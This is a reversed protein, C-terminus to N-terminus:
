KSGRCKELCRYLIVSLIIDIPVTIFFNLYPNMEGGFCHTVIQQIPWGLLYMEYSIVFMESKIQKTGLALTAVVYPLCFILMYDLMEIKCSISMIPIMAIALRIDLKIKDAFDCYLTGVLFMIVPRLVSVLFDNKIGFDLVVFVVIGIIACIIHLAKQTKEDKLIKRSGILVVALLCYAAFEVPMTWLSGNVAKDAINGEFVGPLNHIPILIGNLLYLYTNYNGFYERLSYKTVLPGMVVISIVVVIWLQPFLRTCRKYMFDKVNNNKYLSKTVYFGSLFFLIAVAVGGLTTQNNCFISFPDKQSSAVHFSHSFIVMIAVIFRLLNVNTSIGNAKESLRM